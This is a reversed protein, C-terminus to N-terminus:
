LPKTPGRPDDSLFVLEVRDAFSGEGGGVSVPRPVGYGMMSLRGGPVGLRSQLLSVIANCRRAALKWLSDYTSQAALDGPDTAIVQVRLRRDSLNKLTESVERLFPLIAPLIETSGRAFMQSSELHIEYGDPRRVVKMRADLGRDTLWRSLAHFPELHREDQWTKEGPRSAIPVTEIIRTKPKKIDPIGSDLVSGAGPFFEFMAKLRSTDMASIILLMVFFCLLLNILDSFTIMWANKDV